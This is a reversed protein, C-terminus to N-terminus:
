RLRVPVLEVPRRAVGVKAELKLLAAVEEALPSALDPAFTPALLDLRRAEAFMREAQCGLSREVDVLQLMLKSGEARNGDPLAEALSLNALTVEVFVKYYPWREENPIRSGDDRKTRNALRLTEEYVPEKLQREVWAAGSASLGALWCFYFLIYDSDLWGKVHGLETPLMSNTSELVPSENESLSGAILGGVRNNAAIVQERSLNPDRAYGGSTISTSVYVKPVKLKEAKEFEEVMELARSVTPGQDLDTLSAYLPQFRTVFNGM